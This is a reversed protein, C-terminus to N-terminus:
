ANEIIKMEIVQHFFDYDLCSITHLFDFYLKEALSQFPENQMLALKMNKNSEWSRKFLFSNGTKGLM